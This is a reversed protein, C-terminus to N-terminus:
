AAAVQDFLNPVALLECMMHVGDSGQGYYDPLQGIRRFGASEYLRIAAENKSEVELYIRRVGRSTLEDLMRSLLRRGIKQGRRDPRVALSYIRGSAGRKHQRLLAIGQGVLEGAQEAVLFVASRRQQLYQLQRRTIQFTSFVTKELAVAAALDDRTAARIVPDSTEAAAFVPERLAPEPAAVPEAAFGSPVAVQVAAERRVAYKQLMKVPRYSMKTWALTELGWDDGVNVLPRDAWHTRCFESFIFQALGKTDLDTKEITISSQDKGLCEGFTFGKLNWTDDSASPERVYVVIGQLGLQEACTLTLDTAISEKQRKIANLNSEDLHQADQHIKWSDLLARCDSLHRAPDYPEVRHAYNRLFRNKAQRKSALDGGALDIMRRVDYVYDAGMPQVCLSPRDLRVLLEESVYEVRSREPVGHADNYEDMMEFAGALARSCHGDGIPPMLLTLDGSGNAFVCLHGDLVAWLIRLSNRWSYLQSFTYDSLPENLSAFFPALKAQDALEVPRLGWGPFPDDVMCTVTEESLHRASNGARALRVFGAQGTPVSERNVIPM